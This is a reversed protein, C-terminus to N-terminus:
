ANLPFQSVMLDLPRFTWNRSLRFLILNFFKDADPGSYYLSCGEDAFMKNLIQKIEDNNNFHINRNLTQIVDSYHRIIEDILDQQSANPPLNNIIRDPLYVSADKKRRSTNLRNLISHKLIDSFKDLSSHPPNDLIMVSSDDPMNERLMFFLRNAKSEFSACAIKAQKKDTTKLSRKIEACKTLDRLDLPVWLRCYFTKERKFLLFPEKAFQVL